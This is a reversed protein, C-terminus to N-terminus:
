IKTDEKNRQKQGHKQKSKSRYGKTRRNGSARASLPSADKQQEDFKEAENRHIIRMKEGSRWAHSCSYVGYMKKPHDNVGMRPRIGARINEM